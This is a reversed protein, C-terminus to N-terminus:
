RHGCAVPACDTCDGQKLSVFKDVPGECTAAMLPYTWYQSLNDGFTKRALELTFVIPNKGTSTRLVEDRRRPRHHIFRGVNMKCFKEYDETFLIFDHWMDDVKPSPVITETSIAALALYRKLDEFVERAEAEDWEHKDVMRYVLDDFQFSMIANVVKEDSVIGKTPSRSPYAKDSSPSCTECSPCADCCDGGQRTSVVSKTKFM